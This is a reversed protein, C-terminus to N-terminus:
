PPLKPTTRYELRKGFMLRTQADLGPLVAMFLAALPLILWQAFERLYDKLNHARMAPPRLRLDLVIVALLALLCITLITGSFRPLNYGFTTQFFRPNLWTLLWANLTLIFWNTSWILHTELLKYIRALRLGLPIERHHWSQIIAYPLDTVGWAHRQCQFYRNKLAQWSTKGEPADISTPLFIPQVSVQGRKAFFAQLFLHWDEPIIDRDWYGIEDLLKLSLSYTSYNFYLQDFDQVHSVYNINGLIGILRIPLPVRNLNNYWFIPSQWFRLYRHRDRAFYYTLAAFYRRHFRADADCSTVTLYELAQHHHALLFDKMKRAAWAENAAKGKVEGPLHDPHFVAKLLGFQGRYQRQLQAAKQRANKAREEMALVVLLKKKDIGEQEALSRLSTAAIKAAPENYNPIIVLHYIKSWPLWDPQRNQRYLQQWNIKEARRIQRYGRLGLFVNKFSQYLWFVLFAVTFYAVLRPVFFAGWFPFLIVMWALFGPMIELFRRRYYNQKKKVM